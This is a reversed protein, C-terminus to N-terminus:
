RDRSNIEMKRYIPSPSHRDLSTPLSVVHYGLQPTSPESGRKYEHSSDPFFDRLADTVSIESHVPLVKPPGLNLNGLRVGANLGVINLNVDTLTTFNGSIAQFLFSVSNRTTGDCNTVDYIVATYFQTSTQIVRSTAGTYDAIQSNTGSGNNIPGVQMATGTIGTGGCLFTILYRGNRTVPVIFSANSNVSATGFCYDTTQTVKQVGFYDSVSPSVTSVSRYTRQAIPIPPTHSSILEIKYKVWIEGCSGTTVGTQGASAFIVSAPVSFRSVGSPDFTQGGTAVSPDLFYKPLEARKPKFRMSSAMWPTSRVCDEYQLMSQKSAPLTDTPDYDFAMLVVGTQTTADDTRYEFVLDHIRYEDFSNCFQSLWPFLTANTPTLSFGYPVFNANRPMDFCFEEKTLVTSTKSSSRGFRPASGRLLMGVNTPAVVTVPGKKKGKGKAGKSKNPPRSMSSNGNEMHKKKNRTKRSLSHEYAQAALTKGNIAPLVVPLTTDEPIDESHKIGHHLTREGRELQSLPESSSFNRKPDVPFSMTSVNGEDGDDGAVRVNVNGSKYRVTEIHMPNNPDFLQDLILEQAGSDLRNLIASQDDSLRSREHGEHSFLASRPGRSSDGRYVKGNGRVNKQRGPSPEPGKGRLRGVQRTHTKGDRVPGKTSPGTTSSHLKSLTDSRTEGSSRGQLPPYDQANAEYLDQAARLNAASVHEFLDLLLRRSM